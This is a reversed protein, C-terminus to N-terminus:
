VSTLSFGQGVCDYLGDRERSGPGVKQLEDM